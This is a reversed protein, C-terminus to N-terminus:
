PCHSGDTNLLHDEIVQRSDRAQKILVALELPLRSIRCAALLKEACSDVM